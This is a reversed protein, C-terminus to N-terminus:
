GQIVIGDLLHNAFLTIIMGNLFHYLKYGVQPHDDSDKADGRHFNRTEWSHGVM